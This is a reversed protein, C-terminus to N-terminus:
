DKGVQIEWETQIGQYFNFLANNIEVAARFLDPSLVTCPHTQIFNEFSYAMM